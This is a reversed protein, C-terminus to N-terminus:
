SEFKVQPDPGLVAGSEKNEDMLSRIAQALDRFTAPKPIVCGIRARKIDEQMAVQRYGTCLIVPIDIGLARLEMALQIGTMKPMTMDTILIDFASPDRRLWDLAEVPSLAATVRYGIEQLADTAIELLAAEDDVFLIRESGRLEVNPERSPPIVESEDSVPLYVHFTTGEGVKSDLILGGGYAKLIGHVTSLGLGTGEGTEKTTFYPEFIRKRIEEPIGSGTDRVRIAVYRGAKLSWNEQEIEQSVFADEVEVTLTGGRERMAQYANTCLNMVIQHIETADGEISAATEIRLQIEITAPLAPRMLRMAEQVVLGPQVPKPSRNTRRSFTLIQQILDRARLGAQIIRELRERVKSGPDASAAVLETYGIIASLINNFDHAIGGALTGLAEMKQSQALRAQLQQQEFELQRRYTVDRVVHIFGQFDGNGDVRPVSRVEFHREGHNLCTEEAGHPLPFVGGAGEASGSNRQGRNLRLREICRERLTELLDPDLKESATRNMRVVRCGRDYLIIGEDLSHFSEEWDQKAQILLVQMDRMRRVYGTVCATGLLGLYAAPPIWLNASALFGYSVALVLVTGGLFFLLLHVPRGREVCWFSVM